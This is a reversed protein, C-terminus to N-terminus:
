VSSGVYAAEREEKLEKESVKMKEMLEPSLSLGSVIQVTGDKLTRCPFSYVLDEDVGYPNGASYVGSSYWEGEKTPHVISSMADIAASAASAASSKGRIAIIEAGRKQVQAPFTSNLWNADQIVDKVPKKRITAHEYDPVQTTSHNGWILAKEVETVTCGAKKALLASARNQDLRTMAHFNRRNLREAQHLAILCNTNCPNGVVLVIANADARKDLAKGQEFFIKRNASLLDKREMGPGRPMAGVLFLHTTGEFVKEPNDGTVVEKLLPFACDELEMEIAKLGPAAEKTELLHLAIPENQGFLEGKALRFILSYAINGVAGTVAIRKM